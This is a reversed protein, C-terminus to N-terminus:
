HYHGHEASWVKSSAPASSGHRAASVVLFIVLAMLGALAILLLPSARGPQTKAECCQKFKKGSGCRCRDNRGTKKDTM